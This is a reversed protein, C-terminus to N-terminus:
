DAYSLDRIVTFRDSSHTNRGARRNRFARDEERSITGDKDTDVKDFNRRPGAPLEEKSLKGDKDKDWRDFQSHDQALALGATALLLLATTKM